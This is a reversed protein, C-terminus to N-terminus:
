VCENRLSSHAKAWEKKQGSIATIATQGGNTWIHFIRFNIINM